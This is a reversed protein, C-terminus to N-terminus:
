FESVRATDTRYSTQIHFHRLFFFLYPFHPLFASFSLSLTLKTHIQLLHLCSLRPFLRPLRFILLLFFQCHCRHNIICLTLQRVNVNRYNQTNSFSDTHTILQHRSFPLRRFAAINCCWWSVIDDKSIDNLPQKANGSRGRHTYGATINASSHWKLSLGLCKWSLHM